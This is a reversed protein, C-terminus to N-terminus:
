GDSGLLEGVAYLLRREPAEGVPRLLVDRVLSEAEFRLLVPGVKRAEVLAPEWLADIWKLAWSPDPGHQRDLRGIGRVDAVSIDGLMELLAEDCAVLSTQSVRRGKRCTVEYVVLYWPGELARTVVTWYKQKHPAISPHRFSASGNSTIFM